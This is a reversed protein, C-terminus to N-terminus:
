EIIKRKFVILVGTPPTLQQRDLVHGVRQILKLIFEM